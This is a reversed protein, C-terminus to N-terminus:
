LANAVPKIYAFLTLHIVAREINVGCLRNRIVARVTGAHRKEKPKM